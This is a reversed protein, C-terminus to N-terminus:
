RELSCNQGPFTHTQRIPRRIAEAEDLSAVSSHKVGGGSLTPVPVYIVQHFSGCVGLLDGAAGRPFADRTYYHLWQTRRIKFPDLEGEETPEASCGTPLEDRAGFNPKKEIWRM